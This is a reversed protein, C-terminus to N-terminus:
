LYDKWNNPFNMDNLISSFSISSFEDQYDSILRILSRHLKKFENKELVIKLCLVLEFVGAQSNLQLRKANLVTKIDQLHPTKNLKKSFTIEGHAVANRFHNIIHNTADLVNPTIAMSKTQYTRKRSISFDKAITIRLSDDSIQYLYNLDGFTLFNVLVWLPVHHHKNVYHKIATKQSSKHQITSSLKAITKVVDSVKQPDQTYNDMALYSHEAQYKESFRYSLEASLHTEYLQLANFLITRLEMDFNYLSRIEDFGSGIVYKEPSLVKGRSDRQLFSWKYGNIMAYYGNHELSRKAVSPVELGRDRM